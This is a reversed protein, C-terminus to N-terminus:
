AAKVPRDSDIPSVSAGGGNMNWKGVGWIFLRHYTASRLVHCRLMRNMVSFVYFSSINHGHGVRAHCVIAFGIRHLLFLLPTIFSPEFNPTRQGSDVPTGLGGAATSYTGGVCTERVKIPGWIRKLPKRRASASSNGMRTNTRRGTEGGTRESRQAAVRRPIHLFLCNPENSVRNSTHHRVRDRPPHSRHSTTHRSAICRLPSARESAIQSTTPVFFVWL